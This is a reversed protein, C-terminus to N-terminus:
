CIRAHRQSSARSRSDTQGTGAGIAGFLEATCEFSAECQRLLPGCQQDNGVSRIAALVNAKFATRAPGEPDAAVNAYLAVQGEASWTMVENAFSTQCQTVATTLVNACVPEVTYAAATVGAYTWGGAPEACIDPNSIGEIVRRCQTPTMEDAAACRARTWGTAWDEDQLM